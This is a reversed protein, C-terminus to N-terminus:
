IDQVSLICQLVCPKCRCCVIVMFQSGVVVSKGKLAL